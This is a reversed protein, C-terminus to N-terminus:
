ARRVRSSALPAPTKDYHAQYNRYVDRRPSPRHLEQKAYLTPCNKLPESAQGLSGAQLHIDEILSVTSHPHWHDYGLPLM